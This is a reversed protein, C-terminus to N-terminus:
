LSRASERFTVPERGIQHAPTPRREAASTIHGAMDANVVDDM